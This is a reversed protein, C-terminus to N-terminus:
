SLKSKNKYIYDFFAQGHLNRWEENPQTNVKPMSNLTELKIVENKESEEVDEKEDETTIEEIEKVNGEGDTKVVVVETENDDEEKTPEEKEIIKIEETTETNKVEKVETNEDTKVEENVVEDTKESCENVIDNKKESCENVVEKIIDRLKEETMELMILNGKNPENNLIPAIYGKFAPKNTLAISTMNIPSNNGNLEFTPSVYRYERNELLEKGYKTLKLNSFLGKIPDVIFKSFWGIARSEDGLESKHDVDGLIEENSSNLKEAINELSEKTINEKIPNGDKDSGYFKGIPAIHVNEITGNDITDTVLMEQNLIEKVDM